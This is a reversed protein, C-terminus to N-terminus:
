EIISGDKVRAYNEFHDITRFQTVFSIDITATNDMNVKANNSVKTFLFLLHRQLVCQELVGGCILKNVIKLLESYVLSNLGIDYTISSSM